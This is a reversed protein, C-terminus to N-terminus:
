DGLILKTVGDFAGDNLRAALSKRKEPATADSGTQRGGDVRPSAKVTKARAIAVTQSTALQIQKLSASFQISGNAGKPASLSTILMNSWAKDPALVTLLEGALQAGELRDFIARARGAAGEVRRKGLPFDVLLGELQIESGRVIRHDAVTAGTEIPHQTVEVQTTPVRSTTADIEVVDGSAFKIQTGM